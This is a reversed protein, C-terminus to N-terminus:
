LSAALRRLVGNPDDDIIAGHSVLIRKLRGIAAWQLLQQRLESKHKVLKWRVPTPIHPEKGAFKVLRLFWGAFGTSDRINGVLDNLVLSVGSTDTIQLAGERADTGPVSMFLVNPDGFSRSTTNVPVIEEVKIRAGEPAVVKIDPYRDRWVHADLRHIENPVVLFAPMGYAEIRQMESEELAIASFIVLRRDALRVITMRRPLTGIPMGIDGVVTLINDDLEILANHPLVTWATFPAAM